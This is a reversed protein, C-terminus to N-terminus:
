LPPRMSLARFADSTAAHSIITAMARPISGAINVLMINPDQVVPYLMSYRHRRSEYGDDYQKNNYGDEIISDVRCAVVHRTAGKM